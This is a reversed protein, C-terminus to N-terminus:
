EDPSYVPLGGMRRASARIPRNQPQLNLGTPPLPRGWGPNTQPIICKSSDDGGQNGILGVFGRTVDRDYIDNAFRDIPLRWSVGLARRRGGMGLRGAIGLVRPADPLTMASSPFWASVRMLIALQGIRRLSRIARRGPASPMRKVILCTDHNAIDAASRGRQLSRPPIGRASKRSPPQAAAAPM